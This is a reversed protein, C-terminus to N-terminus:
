KDYTLDVQVGLLKAEDSDDTLELVVNNTFIEDYEDPEMLGKMAEIEDENVNAIYQSGNSSSVENAVRFLEARQRPDIDSFLRSDHYIFDMYHRHRGLLLTMDFCFIKIDNIGDSADDEIKAEINFRIQNEGDNNKVTLGGPKSPYFRSSFGRFRELNADLLEAEEQLYEASREAEKILKTTCDRVKKAYSALLQQYDRIKQARTKLLSLQDSLQSYEDLAGHKGLFGLKKDLERNTSTIANRLEEHNLSIRQKEQRLRSSRKQILGKHFSVVEEMRKVVAGPLMTNAEAYLAAVQDVALDSKERLSQEISSLENEFVVTRNKMERINAALRDAEDRHEEYNEAVRFHSLDEGLRVIEDELDKLEIQSDRGGAFYEHFIEDKQINKEFDKIREREVIQNRKNEILETDLGLLLGNRLLREYPKESPQQQDFSAYSARGPRIFRSILSRGTLSKRRPLIDFLLEELRDRYKALSLEEDNLIIRSQNSTNRAVRYQLGQHEFMLRFEWDPLQDELGKRKNSALCFDILAISLSKGVGNYTRDDSSKESSERKGLVLTIGSKNFRITRFSEHDASLSVLRM